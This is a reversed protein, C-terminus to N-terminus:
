VKIQIPWKKDYGLKAMQNIGMCDEEGIQDEDEDIVIIDRPAVQCKLGTNLLCAVVHLHDLITGVM